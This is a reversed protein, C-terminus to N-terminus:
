SIEQNKDKVNSEIVEKLTELDDSLYLIPDKAKLMNLVFKFAEETEKKESFYPCSICDHNCTARNESCKQELLMLHYARKVTMM